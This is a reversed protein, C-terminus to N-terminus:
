YLLVLFTKRPQLRPPPPPAPDTEPLMANAGVVDRSLLWTRSQQRSVRSGDRIEDGGGDGGDEEDDGEDNERDGGRASNEEEAGKKKKKKKKKDTGKEVTGDDDADERFGRESGTGSQGRM